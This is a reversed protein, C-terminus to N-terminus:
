VARARVDGTISHVVANEADPRFQPLIHGRRSLLRGFAHKQARHDLGRIGRTRSSPRIHGGGFLAPVALRHLIRAVLLAALAHLLINVLHYGTTADGWLKHEVWFVSYVLPYYQPTAGVDFWIRYLGHWSRFAPSTVHDDDDWVYGGHWAPKYALFVAALLAAAFLWERGGFSRASATHFFPVPVKQAICELPREPLLHRDGKEVGRSRVSNPRRKRQAM